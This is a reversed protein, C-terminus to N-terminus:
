SSSCPLSNATSAMKAMTWTAWISMVRVARLSLDEGGLGEEGIGEATVPIAVSEENIQEVTEGTVGTVTLGGTLTGIAILEGARGTDFEEISSM